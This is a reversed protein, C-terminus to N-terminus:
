RAEALQYGEEPEIYINVKAGEEYNSADTSVTGGTISPDITLSHTRAVTATDVGFLRLEYIRTAAYPVGDQCGDAVYLRFYRATVPEDFEYDTINERITGTSPLQLGTQRMESIPLIRFSNRRPTRIRLSRFPSTPPSIWNM